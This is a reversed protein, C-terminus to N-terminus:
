RGREERGATATTWTRGHARAKRGIAAFQRPRSRLVAAREQQEAHERETAARWEDVTMGRAAARREYIALIRPNRTM